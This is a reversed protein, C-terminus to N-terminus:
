YTKYGVERCAAWDYTGPETIISSMRTEEKVTVPNGKVILINKPDADPADLLYDPVRDGPRAVHEVENLPTTSRYPWRAVGQEILNGTDDMVRGGHPCFFRINVGRPVTFMSYDGPDMGGHGSIVTSSGHLPRNFLKSLGNTLKHGAVGGAGGFVAGSAAGRVSHEVFGGVTHPGPMSMYSFAGSSSGSAAGSMAGITITGPLLKMSFKTALWAGNVGAVAGSLSSVAVQWYNVKGTMAKQILTDAGAGILMMGVPGGFGTAVMVGGAVLMAGGIVWDGHQKWWSSQHNYDEIDQDSLPKFGSPDSFALPNNAAYSYPNSAWPATPFQHLPDISLFSFTAPDYTRAGLLEYGHISVSGTASVQLPSDAGRDGALAQMEWPNNVHTARARRHGLPQLDAGYVAVGPLCFLSTDGIHSPTGQLPDYEVPIDGIRTPRGAYDRDIAVRGSAVTLAELHGALNWEYTRLGDPGVESTRRGLADYTYVWSDEASARGILQGAADYTFKESRAGDENISLVERLLGAHDWLYEHKGSPSDVSAIQGAEDYSYSTVGSSDSVSILRSEDDWQLSITEEGEPRTIVYSTIRGLHDYEWKQKLDRGSITASSDDYEYSILGFVSGEIENLAGDKGCRYEVYEGGRQVRSLNGYQDWQWSIADKGQAGYRITRGFADYEIHAAGSDNHGGADSDGDAGGSDGRSRIVQRGDPSYRHRSIVEEEGSPAGGYLTDVSGDRVWKLISGDANEQWIQRRNLDYQSRTVRGLPDTISDVLDHDTYTFATRGGLPNIEAIRRGCDDYEFRTVGGLANTVSTLQGSVDWSFKRKGWQGGSIAVIRGCKDYSYSVLGRGPIRERVLRGCEDWEYRYSGRTERREILRSDADWIFEVRERTSSIMSLRGCSDYDYIAEGEHNKIRIPRGAKDRVIKEANGEADITEIIRGCLDRVIIGRASGASDWGTSLGFGDVSVSRQVEGPTDDQSTLTIQGLAWTLTERFGDPGTVSTPRGMEDYTYTSRAGAPDCIHRLRSLADHVFTWTRGDPLIASALNGLDDWTKELRRGLPDTIVSEQGTADYDISTRGGDPAVVASLRGAPTYDFTWTAGDPDIRSAMRTGHWTFRTRYGSPSTMCTPRGAQDYEMTTTNGAADRVAALDGSDTYSYYTAVGTPDVAKILHGNEWTFLTQGGMPDTIVSPDRDDGAYEFHTTAIEANAQGASRAAGALRASGALGADEAVGQGGNLDASGTRGPMTVSISVLRDQDDWVWDTRVGNADKAAKVRGRQDYERAYLKGARDRTLIQNGWRDYAMTQRNGDSDTVAVLRGYEDSVWANARAGDEDSVETIGNPLYSYRSVRGQPSRQTTVRGADDYTNEVLAVGDADRVLDIVGMSNWRYHRTGQDTDTAETLRGAEDYVYAIPARGATAVGVIRQTQVDWTLDVSRGREHRIQTLRGEEWIYTLTNGPGDSYRIPFGDANFTWAGGSANTIEFGSSRQSLWYNDGTSRAWTLEDRPFLLLRGDDRVWQGDGSDSFTLRSDAPSSWGLGFAGTASNVSNYTRIWSLTVAGGIFTLDREEEIFNGTAVNVPDDAFGSSPPMGQMQAPQVKVERRNLSLGEARLAEALALDSLTPIEGVTGATEFADAITTAWRSQERNAILYHQYADLVSDANLIGWKCSISFAYNRANLARGEEQLIRDADTCNTAYKRLNEPRASSTENNNAVHTFPQREALAPAAITQTPAEGTTGVPRQDMGFFDDFNNHIDWKQDRRAQWERARARAANEARAGEALADIKAALDRLCTSLNGADVGEAKANGKFIEAFRGSFDVSADRAWKNRHGHTLDITDATKRCIAAYEAAVEFDFVVDAMAYPEAM